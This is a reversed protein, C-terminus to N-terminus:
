NELLPILPNTAFSFGKPRNRKKFKKEKLRQRQTKIRRRYQRYELNSSVTKICSEYISRWERLEKKYDQYTKQFTPLHDGVSELEKEFHDLKPLLFYNAYAIFEEGMPMAKIREFAHNLFDQLDTHILSNPQLRIGYDISGDSRCYRHVKGSFSLSEHISYEKQFPELFEKPLFLNLHHEKSIVEQDSFLLNKNPRKIIPNVVTLRFESHDEIVKWSNVWGKCLFFEGCHNILSTRM